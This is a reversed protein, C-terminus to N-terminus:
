FKFGLGGSLALGYFSNGYFYTTSANLLFNKDLYIETGIGGNTEFEMVQYSSYRVIYCKWYYDYYWYSYSSTIFQVGVGWTAYVSLEQLKLFTYDGSLYVPIFYNGQSGVQSYKGNLSLSFNNDIIPGYKIKLGYVLASHLSYNYSLAFLYGVDVNIDIRSESIGSGTGSKNTIIPSGKFTKEDKLSPLTYGFYKLDIGEVDKIAEINVEDSKEKDFIDSWVISSDKNILRINMKANSIRKIKESSSGKEYKVGCELLRYGLICDASLPVGITFDDEKTVNPKNGNNIETKVSTKFKEGNEMTIDELINENRELVSCGKNSLSSILADETLISITSDVRHTTKDNLDTICIKSKKIDKKKEVIENALEQITKYIMDANSDYVMQKKVTCGIFSVVIVLILFYMMLRKM